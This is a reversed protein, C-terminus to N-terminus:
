ATAEALKSELTAVQDRLEALIDRQAPSASPFSWDMPEGDFQSPRFLFEHLGGRGWTDYYMVALTSLLVSMVSECGSWGGTVFSAKFQPKGWLDTVEEVSCGAGNRWLTQAFEILERATGRFAALHRLETPSPYGQDPEFVEGNARDIAESVIDEHLKKLLTSTVRRFERGSALADAIDRAIRGQAAYSLMPWSRRIIAEDSMFHSDDGALASAVVRVLVSEDLPILNM